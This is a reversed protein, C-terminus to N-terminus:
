TSQETVDVFMVVQQGPQLYRSTSLGKNWELLQTVSVRFRGAISSLSDGRRVVYNVRRTTNQGLPGLSATSASAQLPVAGEGILVVLERGVSLTDNTTMGNWSALARLEVGYRRSISWLSDGSRVVHVVREGNQGGGARASALTVGGYAHAARPIMLHDGARILNGRLGNLERLVAPTTAYRGAIHSLTEGSQIRHRTWLVRDQSGLEAVAVAFHEAHAVPMLLRHPGEPDTAFRNFGANLRHLEDSAVGALEAALGMDIQGGTEVVAFYPENPIQPLEIGYREAHEVLNRIALLRPVYTRTERPLYSRIGWFDGPRGAAAARTLARAVNGEGSNYGAIALLWDGDFMAHLTELYDLAGRTSEVVDRRGDFWWNQKVNLRQATGPIIQWLGAARGRSYAFPDFASEIFPLLALDAPMGRADLEEAIYHLYPTARALVRALQDPHKGFWELEHKVAADGSDPLSFEARLRELVDLPAPDPVPDLEITPAPLQVADLSPPLISAPNGIAAGALPSILTGFGDADPEPPRPVFAQCGALLGGVLATTIPHARLAPLRRCPHPLDKDHQQTSGGTQQLQM